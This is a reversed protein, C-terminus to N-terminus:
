VTRTLRKNKEGVKVSTATAQSKTKLGIFSLQFHFRAVIFGDLAHCMEWSLTATIFVAWKNTLLASVYYFSIIEYLFLANQYLTQMFFRIEIQRRKKHIHNSVNGAQTGLMNNSTRLKVLTTCDLVCIVVLFITSTYNDTYTSIISGCKTDAFKFVWETANYHFYCESRARELSRGEEMSSEEIGKGWVKRGENFIITDGSAPAIYHLINQPYYYTM